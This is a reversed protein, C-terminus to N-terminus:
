VALSAVVKRAIGLCEEKTIEPNEFYEERIENLIVGIQPGGKIGLEKMIENGDIPLKVNTMAEMEDLEEIRRMVQLVQTKKKNYTRCQNNANMLDLTVALNAGCSNMLKRIKKDPPLFGETYTSFWEHHRIACSVANVVDNSYKMKRLDAMAIDASFQNPSVTRDGEAMAKGVDHFLAALRHEINADVMTDLVKMTHDFTTVMPNKSEYSFQMDYIDPMIRHLIGCNLLRRVGESPHDTCIIKSVEDTIREQSIIDIRHANKLMGFWTDKSIGWGLRAAFRIVRLIRLPDDSFTIDPDCPTRIIHHALDNFGTGNFDCIEGKTINYYMANITLDRRKADEQITGFVTDPNRSEKHYQEKRTQVCELEIGACDPDKRFEFKATGYTEFIVPNKDLVWSGDKVALWNALMIGGNKMEVVIDIDKVPKGLILDRVCGGVYYVKDEFMTNKLLSELKKTVAIVKEDAKKFLIENM